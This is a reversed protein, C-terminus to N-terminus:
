EKPNEKKPPKWVDPRLKWCPVEGNSALHIAMAGKCGWGGVNALKAVSQETYPILKERALM